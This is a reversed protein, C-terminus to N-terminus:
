GQEGVERYPNPKAKLNITIDDSCREELYEGLEVLKIARSEPTKIHYDSENIRDEEGLTCEFAFNSEKQM